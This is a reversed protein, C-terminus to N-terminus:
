VRKEVLTGNMPTQSTSKPATILRGQHANGLARVTIKGERQGREPHEEAHKDGATMKTDGDGLTVRAKSPRRFKLGSKGVRDSHRRLNLSGVAVCYINSIRVVSVM